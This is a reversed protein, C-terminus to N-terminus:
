RIQGEGDILYKTTTLAKIGMPGRAHLKQTSIGLEAGFGFEGGDTFRTSANVYVCASDIKAQFVRANNLDNTVICESHKTNHSNIFSIAEEIDSVVKVACIFDLFEYGFDEPCAKKASSRIIKYSIEDCRLEVKGEFEKALMPLFDKAVDKNVVICEIANCAGPRQTKANYAIQVAMKLDASQDVYLHCIGAGTQIVPVKAIQTVTNILKAGGRPFAVDIKGVATLIEEVEAHSKCPALEISEPIGFKSCTLGQKIANLIAINSALASSSGRLLISNGSKYALAFADATVNPRSEYIVAVVGIPVRIQRISLGNPTKWGATEEGVPDEQSIITNISNIISDIKKDDLALREVLSESMGSDRANQVDFSNATLINRRNEELSLAVCSLAENKQLATQLYLRNSAKRLSGCIANIDM